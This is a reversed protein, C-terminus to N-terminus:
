HNFKKGSTAPKSASATDIVQESIHVIRHRNANCGITEEAAAVEVYKENETGCEACVQKGVNINFEKGGCVHCEM